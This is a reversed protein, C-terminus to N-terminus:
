HSLFFSKGALHISWKSTNGPRFWFGAPSGDNCVAHDASTNDFLVLSMTNPAKINKSSAGTKLQIGSVALVYSLLLLLSLLGAVLPLGPTRGGARMMM